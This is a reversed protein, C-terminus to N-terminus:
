PMRKEEEISPVFDPINLLIVFHWSSPDEYFSTQYEKRNSFLLYM